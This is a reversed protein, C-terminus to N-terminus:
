RVIPIRLPGGGGRTNRRAKLDRVMAEFKQEHYEALDEREDLRDIATAAAGHVLGERLDEPIGPEQADSTLETAQLTVLAAIAVGSATPAPYLEIQVAGTDTFDQAYVGPTVSDTTLYLRGSKFGWLDKQGVQDYEGTGVTLGEEIRVISSSLAYEAQGAVTTAIQLMAQRWGARAVAQRLRENLWSIIETDPADVGIEDRLKAVMDARTLGAM